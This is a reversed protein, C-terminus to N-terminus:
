IKLGLIHSKELISFVFMDLISLALVWEPYVAYEFGIFIIIFFIISFMMISKSIQYGAISLIIVIGSLWVYTPSIASILAYFYSM